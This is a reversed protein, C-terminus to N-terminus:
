VREHPNPSDLMDQQRHWEGENGRSGMVTNPGVLQNKISIPLMSSNTM